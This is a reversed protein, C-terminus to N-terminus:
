KRNEGLLGTKGTVLLRYSSELLTNINFTLECYFKKDKKNVAVVYHTIVIMSNQLEKFLPYPEPRGPM